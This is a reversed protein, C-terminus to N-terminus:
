AYTLEGQSRVRDVTRELLYLGLITSAAGLVMLVAIRLGLDPVPGPVLASRLLDAGWSLYVLRGPLELWAPLLSLPVLVGGLVFVPYSLSNQFRRASRALVFVSSMVTASGATAVATIVAAVALVVPHHVEVSSAAVAGVVAVEVFALLSVTTTAVVRGFVMASFSGPASVQGELTGLYRDGDIIEGSVLLAMSWLAMLAPAILAFSDLDPRGSYRTTSLLIVALFPTNILVLWSDRSRSMLTWQFVAGSALLRLWTM